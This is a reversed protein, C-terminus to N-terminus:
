DTSSIPEILTDFILRGRCDTYDGGRKYQFPPTLRTAGPSTHFYPRMAIRGSIFLTDFRLTKDPILYVM